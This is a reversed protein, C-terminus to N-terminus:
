RHVGGMLAEEPATEPLFIAPFHNARFEGKARDHQEQLRALRDAAADRAEHIAEKGKKARALRAGHKRVVQALDAMERDVSAMESVMAEYAESAADIRAMAEGIGETLAALTEPSLAGDRARMSKLIRGKLLGAAKEERCTEAYLSIAKWFGAHTLTDSESKLRGAASLVLTDFWGEQVSSRQMGRPIAPLRVPYRRTRAIRQRCAEFAAGIGHWRSWDDSSAPSSTGARGHGATGKDPRGGLLRIARRAFDLDSDPIWSIPGSVANYRELEALRTELRAKHRLAGNIIRVFFLAAPRGLFPGIEGAAPRAAAARPPPPPVPRGAVVDKWTSMPPPDDPRFGAQALRHVPEVVKRAFAEAAAEPGSFGVSLGANVLIDVRKAVAVVDDSTAVPREEKRAFDLIVLLLGNTVAEEVPFGHWYGVPSGDLAAKAAYRRRALMEMFQGFPTRTALTAPTKAPLRRTPKTAPKTM